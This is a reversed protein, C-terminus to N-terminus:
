RSLRQNISKIKYSLLFSSWDYLWIQQTGESLPASHSVSLHSWCNNCLYRLALTGGRSSLLQLSDDRSIPSRPIESTSLLSHKNLFGAVLSSWYLLVSCPGVRVLMERPRISPGKKQKDCEPKSLEVQPISTHKRAGPVSSDHCNHWWKQVRIATTMDWSPLMCKYIKYVFHLIHQAESFLCSPPILIM